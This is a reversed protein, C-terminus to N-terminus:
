ILFLFHKKINIVKQIVKILELVRRKAIKERGKLVVNEKLVIIELEVHLMMGHNLSLCTMMGNQKEQTVLAGHLQMQGYGLRM